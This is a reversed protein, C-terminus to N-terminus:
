TEVLTVKGIKKEIRQGTQPEYLWMEGMNDMAWVFGHHGTGIYASIYGFPLAQKGKSIKAWRLKVSAICCIAYDDCDFKEEVYGPLDKPFWCDFLIQEFDKRPIARYDKDRIIILESKLKLRIQERVAVGTYTNGLKEWKKRKFPWM